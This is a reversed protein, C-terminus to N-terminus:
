DRRVHPVALLDVERRQFRSLRELAVGLLQLVIVLHCKREVCSDVTGICRAHPALLAVWGLSFHELLLESPEFTQMVEPSGLM